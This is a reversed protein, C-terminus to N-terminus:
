VTRLTHSGIDKFINFDPLIPEFIFHGIWFMNKQWILHVVKEQRWKADKKWLGLYLLRCTRYQPWVQLILLPFTKLRGNGGARKDEARWWHFTVFLFSLIPWVLVLIGHKPNDSKPRWYCKGPLGFILKYGFM